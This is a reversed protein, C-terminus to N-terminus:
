FPGSLGRKKTGILGMDMKRGFLREANKYAINEAIERPLLALWKRNVDIIADYMAWQSNVWTDSGIMLRRHHKRIVKEWAPDLAGTDYIDNERFSTDAYLNPYADFMALAVDAPESMGVHAWIVTLKPEFEFFMEVPAASSHIHVPINRRLAMKAVARLLNEDQPDISRVHFEGLGEHPYAALRQELYEKMGKDKTWDSSGAGDRYPRLEPVVRGPAHKWLKITGQDPTSSVLGMVVGNRDMMEIVTQPPYDEWAPEKYHIHADFIPLNQAGEGIPTEASSAQALFLTALILLRM